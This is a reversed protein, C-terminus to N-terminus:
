IEGKVLGCVRISTDLQERSVGMKEITGARVTIRIYRM